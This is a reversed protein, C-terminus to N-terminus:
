MSTDYNVDKDRTLHNIFCFLFFGVNVTGIWIVFFIQGCRNLARPSNSLTKVFLEKGNTESECQKTGPSPHVSSQTKNVGIAVITHFLMILILTFLCFLLWWDIM